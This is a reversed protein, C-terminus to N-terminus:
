IPHTQKITSLEHYRQLPGRDPPRRWRGMSPPVTSRRPQITCGRKKLGVDTVKAWDQLRFSEAVQPIHQCVHQRANAALWRHSIHPPFLTDCLIRSPPPHQQEYSQSPTYLGHRDKSRQLHCCAAAHQSRHREQECFRGLVVQHLQGCDVKGTGDNSSAFAQGNISGLAVLQPGEHTLHQAGGCTSDAGFMFMCVSTCM